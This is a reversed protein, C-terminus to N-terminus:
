LTKAARSVTRRMKEEVASVTLAFVAKIFCKAYIYNQMKIFIIHKTRIFLSAM